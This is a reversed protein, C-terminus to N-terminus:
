FIIKKNVIVGNELTIKVILANMTKTLHNLTIQNANVNKYSDIKRGLVDFIEINKIAQNSSYVIAKDNTVVKISNDINYSGTGLVSDTYRLIFRDNYTGTATTFVYPTSKIDFIVNLLKDEIFVNIDSFLGDFTEIRISFTGASTANYGLVVQDNVDFPLPRGQIGLIDEPIISYFNVGNGGFRSGDFDRDMNLTAGECYGVLIQSFAGTTNTLNLWIRHREFPLNPAFAANTTRFFQTNEDTVNTVRMANTFIAKGTVALSRTFFSMGAAIFGNPPDGGSSAAATATGGLKNYSAYDSQTYNYTYDGYFPDPFATSPVTNHTWLYITGDILAANNLNSLFLNANIASPYPNGILNWKSEYPDSSTSPNTGFTIPAFIDGNNPTGVFNGTFAAAVTTSFTSPARIIYGNQHDMISAASVGQWNGFSNGISPTWSYYISGPSLTGLTFAGMKVPSNWYTYSTRKMPQSTREMKFTGTVTNVDNNIQVLSANNRVYFTGNNKVNVWDTVTINNGPAVELNGTSKVTLNKAYANYSSGSILTLAPIIVCSDATPVGSPKWNAATSWNTTAGQWIKSNNTVTIPQDVTCGNSLVANATFVFSGLELQTLTPKVYVTFAPTGAVYSNTCPADTYADVPTASTWNFATNLSVDGYLKVNDIAVGDCWEGHFRFRIKLNTQNIYSNLNFSKNLFRTGIAVDAIQKELQIWTTGGDISVDIKVYDTNGNTGDLSYHSYYEDFTLTLTQYNTSNLTNSILSNDIKYPGFDSSSIVFRNTGFGSSIAPFWVQGPPNVPVYTSSKNQWATYGNITAGNDINNINNFAGLGGSEFNENILYTQEKDGAATLSIATNEGCVIPSTPTFSLTPISNITAIVATRVLSECGNIATVYYTKTATISPTTWAGTTALPIATGGTATAYWKFSTVGASGTAALNVTGTGCKVGDTVSTIVAACNAIVTFLYDETEGKSTLLDCSDFTWNSSDFDNTRLRIRYDGIAQTAPIVFGLTTSYVAINGTDYVLEGSDTFDGDKNWDIWAKLFGINNPNIQTTINIGQGQAQKAKTALGTFDQYGKPATSFTSTKSVDNLTGVFSINTFYISNANKNTSVLPPCYIPSSTAAFNTLPSTTLYLPGGTCGTSSYSYVFYYYTTSGLLGTSSFTTTGDTDVIVNTNGLITSGIAYNTGNVLIPAIGTTNAVVLYNSPAPSAATFNGTMSTITIPSLVLITPQTTPTVCSTLVPCTRSITFAGTITGTGKHAVYVYYTTGSVTTFTHTETGGGISTDRCIVNLLSGCSGSAIGMEQDFTALGTTSITTDNGDGVFTYWVGNNSMTCGTSVVITNTDVTTGAM